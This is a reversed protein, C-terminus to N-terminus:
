GVGGAGNASAGRARRALERILLEKDRSDRRIRKGVSERFYRAVSKGSPTKKRSAQSDQDPQADVMIKMGM